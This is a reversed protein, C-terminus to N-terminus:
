GTCCPASPAPSKARTSKWFRCPARPLVAPPVASTEAGAQPIIEIANIEPNQVQSKFIIRFEGNAVEVPVTEIYARNPGGTKAWIDFDKFERGQVTYSFVREGPGTIGEFTEAFYLKALYKGNPLKCSFSEM